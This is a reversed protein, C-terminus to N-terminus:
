STFSPIRPGVVDRHDDDEGRSEDDKPPLSALTVARMLPTALVTTDPVGIQTSAVSPPMLASAQSTQTFRSSTTRTSESGFSLRQHPHKDIGAPSGVNSSSGYDKTSSQYGGSVSPVLGIPIYGASTFPSSDDTGLLQPSGLTSHDSHHVIQQQQQSAHHLQRQQSHVSDDFSSLFDFENDARGDRANGKPPEATSLRQQFLSTTHASSLKLRDGSPEEAAFGLDIDPPDMDDTITVPLGGANIYSTSGGRQAVSAFCGASPRRHNRSTSGSRLGRRSTSARRTSSAQSVQSASGNFLLPNAAVFAGAAETTGDGTCLLAHLDQSPHSNTSSHLAPPHSGAIHRRVSKDVDSEASHDRRDVATDDALAGFSTHHPVDKKESAQLEASPRRADEVHKKSSSSRHPMGRAGGAGHRHHHLHAADPTGRVENSVVCGM